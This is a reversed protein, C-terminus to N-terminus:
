NDKGDKSYAVVQWTNFDLDRLSELSRKVPTEDQYTIEIKADTEIPNLLLIFVALITLFFRGFFNKLFKINNM